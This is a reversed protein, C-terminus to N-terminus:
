IVSTFLVFLSSVQVNQEHVLWTFYGSYTQMSVVHHIKLLEHMGVIFVFTNKVMVWHRWHLAKNWSILCSIFRWSPSYKECFHLHSQDHFLSRKLAPSGARCFFFVASLLFNTGLFCLVCKNGNEKRGLWVMWNVHSRKLYHSWITAIIQAFRSSNSDRANM